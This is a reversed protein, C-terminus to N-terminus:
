NLLDNEICTRVLGATNRVGLKSLMNRRHSEVTSVSIHLVDSIEGTTRENVILQLVEKERRSLKPFLTTRARTQAAELLKTVELSVVTEGAFVRRITDIVEARSANKLLFGAAGFELISRILSVESLMSLGVVKVHPHTERLRRTVEIGNLGPMSIDLVAVDVEHEVCAEYAAQGDKAIAVCRMDPQAELMLELGDIVIQHDDALLIKIM